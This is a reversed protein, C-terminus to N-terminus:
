GFVVIFLARYRAYKPGLGLQQRQGLRRQRAGDEMAARRLQLRSSSSSTKAFSGMMKKYGFSGWTSDDGDGSDPPAAKSGCGGDVSINAARPSCGQSGRETKGNEGNHKTCRLARAATSRHAAREAIADGLKGQQAAVTAPRLQQSGDV